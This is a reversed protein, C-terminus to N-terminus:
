KLEKWRRRFEPVAIMMSSGLGGLMAILATPDMGKYVMGGLSGFLGIAALIVGAGLTLERIIRTYKDTPARLREVELTAANEHEETASELRALELNNDIELKRTDANLQAIALDTAARESVAGARIKEAQLQYQGYKEAAQLSVQAVLGMLELDVSPADAPLLGTGEGEEGEEGDGEEADEGEERLETDDGGDKAM